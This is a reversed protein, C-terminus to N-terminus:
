IQSVAAMAHASYNELMASPDYGPVLRQVSRMSHELDRRQLAHALEQMSAALEGAAIRPSNVRLLTSGMGGADDMIDQLSEESAVLTESIKDGARLGTFVIEMKAHPANAAILERALEAINRQEAVSPVYLGSALNASAVSLLLGVAEPLSVFYRQAEPHTVTVPGGKAIQDLFRPVVSGQAGMVNVLRLVKAQTGPVSWSLIALEAIRKSAGMVGRPDAAKDTSILIFQKVGHQQAVTALTHTGIANNLVAAFPNEEMLPVHKCAAVHFVIEPWYREFLEQMLVEDTVSGLVSAHPVGYNEEGIASDIEYLNRESSDLLLIHEPGASLIAQTLASGIWGGAGTVLVRKKQFTAAPYVLGVRQKGPYNNNVM